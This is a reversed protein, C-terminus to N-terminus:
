HQSQNKADNANPASTTNANASGSSGHSVAAHSAFCISCVHAFKCNPHHYCHGKNFAGCVERGTKPDTALPVRKQTQKNGFSNKGATQKFQSTQERRERLHVDALHKIDVGWPFQMTAQLQRYERDWLLMSEWEYRTALQHFKQSYTLYCPIAGIKLKNTCLLEYMIRVNAIGWQHVTINKLQPKRPGTEIVLLGDTGPVDKREREVVHGPVFDTIDLYDALKGQPKLMMAPDHFDLM